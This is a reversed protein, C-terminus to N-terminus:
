TALECQCPQDSVDEKSTGVAVSRTEYCKTDKYCSESGRGLNGNEREKLSAEKNIIKLTGAEPLGSATTVKSM